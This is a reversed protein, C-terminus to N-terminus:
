LLHLALEELLQDGHRIDTRRGGCASTMLTEVMAWQISAPSVAESLLSGPTPLRV